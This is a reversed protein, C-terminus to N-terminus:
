ATNEDTMRAATVGTWSPTPMTPKVCPAEGANVAPMCGYVTMVDTFLVSIWEYPSKRFSIDLVTAPCFRVTTAKLGEVDALVVYWTVRTASAPVPRGRMPM